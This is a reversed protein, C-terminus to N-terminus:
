EVRRWVLTIRNRTKGDSGLIPATDITLVDKDLQIYRVQDTGVWAPNAAVDVKHTVTNGVASWTGSYASSSVYLAAREETARDGAPAVPKRDKPDATLVAIMRGKASYTLQGVPNEGWARTVEGTDVNAFAMSTLKWVGVPNANQAAVGGTLIVGTALVAIRALSNNM